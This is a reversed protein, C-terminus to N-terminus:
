DILYSTRYYVLVIEFIAEPFGNLSRYSTALTAIERESTIQHLAFLLYQSTSSYDLFSLSMKLFIAAHEM